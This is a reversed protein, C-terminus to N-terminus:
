RVRTWPKLLLILDFDSGRVRSFTLLNRYISWRHRYPQGAVYGRPTPPEYVLTLVDGKVTYRGRAGLRRDPNSVRFRGDAFEYEVSSKQPLDKPLTKEPIGGAILERRTWTMRWRGELASASAQSPAARDARACRVMPTSTPMDRRMREITAIADRTLPDRELERYVPQVAERLAALESTSASVFSLRGQKCAKAMAARADRETQRLEPTLADRGADVLVHQQESTLADFARRNMVISFPKPWLVVNTTLAGARQEWSNYVITNPDIEVGDLGALSGPVYGKARGGLARFSARAVDGPVIGVTAGAYDGPGVLARSVGLPQRLPGPHLAIGVVGAQAVGKLLEPALSSTLVEEELKLSDILFPALLAQFSRVGMTDWVRVGVIGLQAKGALVDEVVGREYEVETDREAPVLEVRMSGGSLREVADAFEPAGSQTFDNETELRLLLPQKERKGGAKDGGSGSCAVSLLALGIAALTGLATRANV